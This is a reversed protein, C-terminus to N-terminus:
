FRTRRAARIHLRACPARQVAELRPSRHRGPTGIHWLRDSQGPSSWSALRQRRSGAWEAKGDVRGRDGIERRAERAHAPRVLRGLRRPGVARRDTEHALQDVVPRVGVVPAPGLGREVRPRLEHRADVADVHVEQVDLAAARVRLRQQQRVAPGPRHEFEQLQNRQQGVRRRVAAVGRVGEGDDHGRQRPVRQREALVLRAAGQRRDAGHKVLEHRAEAVRAVAGLAAVPPREDGRPQARVARLVSIPM